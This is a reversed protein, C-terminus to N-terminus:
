LSLREWSGLTALDEEITALDGVVIVAARDTVLGSLSSTIAEPTIELLRALERPLNDHPLGLAAEEALMDALAGRSEMGEVVAGRHAGVAKELEAATVGELLRAVESLLDGLAAATVSREVSTGAMLVGHGPQQMSYAWAGYTYGKDERLLQNLRSTFTGGLVTTGLRGALADESEASWGPLLVRLVSQAAGPQDVMYLVPGDGVGAPPPPPAPAAREAPSWDAFHVDLAAVLADAEVAGTVIFRAHDPASRAAWSDRLADSDIEDLSQATGKVPHAHPHGEGYYVRRSIVAAKYSPDDADISLEGRRIELQRAVEPADMRPRLVADALLGLGTDLHDSHTDLFLRTHTRHTDVDLEIAYREAVAAFAPADREGAGYLLMHDAMSAAGAAGAADTAAGGPVMLQLSVLPLDPQSVVWLSAGSALTHVSPTPPRVRPPASIEPVVALAADVAPPVSLAAPPAPARVACSVLLFLGTM